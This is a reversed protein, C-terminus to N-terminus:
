DLKVGLAEVEKIWIPADEKWMRLAEARGGTATPIAFSERLAKARPTENGEVAIRSLMELIELPTGSRMSFALGGELAAIPAKLGQELLTPTDPLKPSRSAGTVAIARFGKNMVTTAAQYSGVAVQLQGSGMDVWMPAEGKYHVVQMNAGLRKNLTEALVHPYSAPAYSGMTSQNKRSWAVFEDWNRAGLREPVVVVLPGSPFVCVPDIDKALDFPLKRYLVRNQWVAGTTTGLITYGDTPARVVSDIAINGGAGPRNEVVCPQGLKAAIQDAFLRGYADTLGGPAFGIVIRIPRNPYNAIQSLARPVASLAASAGVAAILSRRKFETM